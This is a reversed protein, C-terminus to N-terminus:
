TEPDRRVCAFPVPNRPICLFPSILPPPHTQLFASLYIPLRLDSLTLVLLNTSSLHLSPSLTPTHPKVAGM